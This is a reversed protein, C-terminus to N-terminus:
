YPNVASYDAEWDDITNVWSASRLTNWYKYGYAGAGTGWVIDNTTLTGSSDVDKFVSFGFYKDHQAEFAFTATGQADTTASLEDVKTVGNIVDGVADYDVDLSFAAAPSNAYGIFTVTLTFVPNPAVAATPNSLSSSRREARTNVAYRYERTPDLDAHVYETGTYDVIKTSDTNPVTGDDTYYITYSVAGEVAYWSVTISEPGPVAVVGSPPDPRASPDFLSCGGLAVAAVLIALILKKM